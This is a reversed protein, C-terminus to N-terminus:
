YENEYVRRGPVRFKNRSGFVNFGNRRINNNNYM